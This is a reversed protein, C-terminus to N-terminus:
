KPCGPTFLIIAPPLALKWQCLPTMLPFLIVSDRNFLWLLFVGAASCLRPTALPCLAPGCTKPCMVVGRGRAFPEQLCLVLGPQKQLEQGGVSHVGMNTSM